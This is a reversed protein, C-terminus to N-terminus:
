VSLEHHQFTGYPNPALDSNATSRELSALQQEISARVQPREFESIRYSGWRASVYKNLVSRYFAATQFSM